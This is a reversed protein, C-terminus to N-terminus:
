ACKLKNLNCRYIILEIPLTKYNSFIMLNDNDDVDAVKTNKFKTLDPNLLKFSTDICKDSGNQKDFIFWSNIESNPIVNIVNSYNYTLYIKNDIAPELSELGCVIINLEQTKSIQGETSAKLAIIENM